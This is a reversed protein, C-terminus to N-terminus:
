ILNLNIVLSGRICFPGTVSVCSSYLKFPILDFHTRFSIIGKTLFNLHCLSILITKWAIWWLSGFGHEPPYPHQYPVIMHLPRLDTVAMARFLLLFLLPILREWEPLVLDSGSSVRRPWSASLRQQSTLEAWHNIDELTCCFTSVLHSCLRLHVNRLASREQGRGATNYLSIPASLAPASRTRLSTEIFLLFFFVFLFPSLM